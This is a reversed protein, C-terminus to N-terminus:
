SDADIKKVETQASGRAFRVVLHDGLTLVSCDRVIRGARDSAISYGRELVAHPNLAHMRAGLGAVAADLARVNRAAAADLRLSAQEVKALYHEPSPRLLTM